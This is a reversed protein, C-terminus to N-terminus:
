RGGGGILGNRESATGGRELDMAFFLRGRTESVQPKLGSRDAGAVVCCEQVQSTSNVTKMQSDGQAMQCSCPGIASGGGRHNDGSYHLRREM